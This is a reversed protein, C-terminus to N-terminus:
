IIGLNHKQIIKKILIKEKEVQQYIWTYHHNQWIKAIKKVRKESLLEAVLELELYCIILHLYTSYESKAGQPYGVPVTKFQLKLENIAKNIKEENQNAYWHIQEHLYTALLLDKEEKSTHATHLTLIPHSHPITNKKIHVKKTYEWQELDHTKRLASLLNVTALESSEANETTIEIAQATAIFFILISSILLKM